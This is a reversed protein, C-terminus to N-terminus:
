GNGTEKLAAAVSRGLDTFNFGIAFLPSTSEEFLGKEQLTRAARLWTAVELERKTLVAREEASLGAVIEEVTM